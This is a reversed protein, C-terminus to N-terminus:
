LKDVIAADPSNEWVPERGECTPLKSYNYRPPPSTTSWEFTGAFWPNPGAPAGNRRSLWLNLFFICFGLGLTFAGITALVNMPQWGTEPAYTYVRRTMGGLGLHHLPYFTLNFGVFVLLVSIRGLTESPMKGTWKPFWYHLAGLLPFIAGGILVYHLHAVVFMTDHAQTDLSVSALMVGTLGGVIFTAFFALVFLLPTKLWPRGLWLTATWCFIQVGNPITILLSSATFMGQGLEPIPTVFMHHVWVGFGIFGTAIMSLVLPTYGFIKRRAFTPIIASIFGTAPLFIIYVDPHGFFWFLHQWLLADGGETHNFFQTSVNTLRDMSLLTSCITVAPMAFLIMFFAVLMSWVFLPIRNLSM